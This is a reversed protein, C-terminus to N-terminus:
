GYSLLVLSGSELPAENKKYTSLTKKLTLLGISDNPYADVKPTESLCESRQTALMDAVITSIQHTM